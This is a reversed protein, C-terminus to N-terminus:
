GFCGYDKINNNRQFWQMYSSQSRQIIGIWHEFSSQSIKKELTGLEGREKLDYHMTKQKYWM